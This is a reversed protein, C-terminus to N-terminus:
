LAGLERRWEPPPPRPAPEWELIPSGTPRGVGLLFSAVPVM